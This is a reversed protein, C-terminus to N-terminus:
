APAILCTCGDHAQPTYLDRDVVLPDVGETNPTITDGARAFPEEATSIREAIIACIPCQNVPVWRFAKVGASAFLTRSLLASQTVSMGIAAARTRDEGWSAVHGSIAAVPYESEAALAALQSRAVVGYDTGVADSREVVEATLAEATMTPEGFEDIVAERLLDALSALVPQVDRALASSLQDYVQSLDRDLALLQDREETVSKLVRGIAKQERRAARSVVSEFLGRFSVEIRHRNQIARDRQAATLSAKAPPQQDAPPAKAPAPKAPPTPPQGGSIPVMNLPAWLENALGGEVPLNDIKRIEDVKRWGVGGTSIRYAEYRSKLDAREIGDLLFEFFYGQRREKDTLLSLNFVQEINVAWPLLTDTRHEIGQHEINNHTSRTLEQVKHPSVRYIRCTQLVDWARTGLFQADEPPISIKEVQIGEELVLTGFQEAAGRTQQDVKIALRKRADPSLSQPHTLVLDHRAGKGWFKAAFADAALGAGIAERAMMIPSYGQVGDQGLGMIHVVEDRNLTEYTGDENRKRFIKRGNVVKPEMASPQLIKLASPYGGQIIKRAYSNGSALTHAVQTLRWIYSNIGLEPDPSTHMLDYAPHDTVRDKGGDRRRRYLPIPIKALDQSIVQICALAAVFRLATEPNVRIGSETPGGGIWDQIAAWSAEKPTVRRELSTLFGM